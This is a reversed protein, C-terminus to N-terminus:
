ALKLLNAKKFCRWEQRETDYYTQVTDNKKRDDGKTAPVLKDSLTGYAERTSGDVKLFYFKVIALRMAAVLKANAWAAKLARSLTYGNRRVFQWALLMIERLIEKTKM